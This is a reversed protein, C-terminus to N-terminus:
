PTAAPDARPVKVAAAGPTARTYLSVAVLPLELVVGLFALFLAAGRAVRSALWADPLQTYFAWLMAGTAAFGTFSMVLFQALSNRPSFSFVFPSGLSASARVRSASAFAGLLHGWEHLVFATAGLALGAVFGSFDAVLGDGASRAALLWWAGLGFAVIGGDRAALRGFGGM